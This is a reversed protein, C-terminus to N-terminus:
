KEAVWWDVNSKWPCHIASNRSRVIFIWVGKTIKRHVWRRNYALLQIRYNNTNSASKTMLLVITSPFNNDLATTVPLWLKDAPVSSQAWRGRIGLRIGLGYIEILIRQSVSHFYSVCIGFKPHLWRWKEQVSTDVHAKWHKRTRVSDKSDYVAM